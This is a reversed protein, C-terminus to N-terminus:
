FGAAALAIKLLVQLIASLAERQLAIDRENSVNETKFREALAGWEVVVAEVPMADVVTKYAGLHDARALQEMWAILRGYTDDALLWVLAEGYRKIWEHYQVPVRAKIEDLTM